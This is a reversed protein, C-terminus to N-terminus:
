NIGTLNKTQYTFHYYEVCRAVVICNFFQVFCTVSWWNICYHGRWLFPLCNVVMSSVWCCFGALPSIFAAWFTQRDWTVTLIIPDCWPLYSYSLLLYVLDYQNWCLTVYYQIWCYWVWFVICTIHSVRIM